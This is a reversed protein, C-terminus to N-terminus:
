FHPCHDLLYNENEPKRELVPTLEPTSETQLVPDPQPVLPTPEEDDFPPM